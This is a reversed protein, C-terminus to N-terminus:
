SRDHATDVRLGRQNWAQIYPRGFRDDEQGSADLRPRSAHVVDPTGPRVSPTPLNPRLPQDVVTKTRRCRTLSAPVPPRGTPQDNPEPRHRQGATAGEQRPALRHQQTRSPVRRRRLREEVLLRACPHPVSAVSDTEVKRWIWRPGGTGEKVTIHLLRNRCGRSSAGRPRALMVRGLLTVVTM